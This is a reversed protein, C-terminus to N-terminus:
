RTWRNSRDPLQDLLDELTAMEYRVAPGERAAICRRTGSPAAARHRTRCRAAASAAPGTRRAPAAPHGPRRHAVPRANPRPTSMGPM